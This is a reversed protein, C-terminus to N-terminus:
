EDDQEKMWQKFRQEQLAALKNLQNSLNTNTRQYTETLPHQKVTKEGASNTHPIVLGDTEIQTQLDEVQVTLVAIQTVMEIDLQTPDILDQAIRKFVQKQKRNLHKPPTPTSHNNDM